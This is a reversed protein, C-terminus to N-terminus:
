EGLTSDSLGVLGRSEIWPFIGLYIKRFHIFAFVRLDPVLESGLRTIFRDSPRLTVQSFDKVCSFKKYPIDHIEGRRAGAALLAL